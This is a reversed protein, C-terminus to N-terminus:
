HRRTRATEDEGDVPASDDASSSGHRDHGGHMFLHMLPCLALILLFPLVGIAHARHEASLLFGGIVAFFLLVALTRFGPRRLGSEALPTM